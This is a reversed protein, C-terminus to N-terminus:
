YLFERIDYRGARLGLRRLAGAWAKLEAEVEPLPELGLAAYPTSPDEQFPSLYVLDGRDLPLEALLALSDRFHAEAFPKGGAGVLLIVGVAVGARKLAGVLAVVERPHGPKGLLALLPAHGTELGVYVRRLGLARLGEWWSAEKKLGSFLDLFGLVPEGPFARQVIELLPLLPESLALANGDALFVGRRLLMGRGLLERVREVHEAFAKPSRKQFPRDQYFSCFTCRNWTCGTTAQLVVALYADPPLISIPWAYARQYPGPDLLAEPTWRLVERRRVADRLHAEALALAERYVGLAEEPALRRRRRVGERHRLHLSGDLARKYTMGQRFYHYLRGERDFSLVRDGLSLLTAEPKLLEM